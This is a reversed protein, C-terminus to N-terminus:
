LLVDHCDVFISTKDLLKGRQECEAAECGEEKAREQESSWTYPLLSLPFPFPPSSVRFVHFLVHHKFVLPFNYDEVKQGTLDSSSPPRADQQEYLSM